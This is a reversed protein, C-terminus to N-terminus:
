IFGIMWGLWLSIMIWDSRSKNMEFIDSHKEDEGIDWIVFNWLWEYWDWFKRQERCEDENSCEDSGMDKDDSDWGWHMRSSESM